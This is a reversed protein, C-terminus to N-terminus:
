HGCNTCILNKSSKKQQFFTGTVKNEKKLSGFCSYKLNNQVKNFHLKKSHQKPRKAISGWHTKVLFDQFIMLAIAKIHMDDNANILSM